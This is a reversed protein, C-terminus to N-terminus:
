RWNVTDYCHYTRKAGAALSIATNAGAGIDDGSYPFVDCAEGADVNVITITKGVEAAPLKVSDGASAVVTVVNLESTLQVASGQGGGAHATIGSTVTTILSGTDLAVDGTKRITLRTALSGAVPTAFRIEGNKGADTVDDGTYGSIRGFLVNTSETRGVFDFCGLNKDTGAVTSNYLKWGAGSNTDELQGIGSTGKIHLMYAPPASSFDGIGVKGTDSNIVFVDGSDGIKRVLLAEANTTDITVGGTIALNVSGPDLTLPGTSRSFEGRQLINSFTTGVPM